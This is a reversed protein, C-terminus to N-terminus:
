SAPVRADFPGQGLRWSRAWGGAPDYYLAWLAYLPWNRHRFREVLLFSRPRELDGPKLELRFAGPIAPDQELGAARDPHFSALAARVSELPPAAGAPAGLTEVRFRLFRRGAGDRDLDALIRTAGETHCAPAGPGPLVPAPPAPYQEPHLAQDLAAFPAAIVLAPIWSIGVLTDQLKEGAKGPTPECLVVLPRHDNGRTLRLLMPWGSGTRDAVRAAPLEWDFATEAPGELTRVQIPELVASLSWGPEHVVLHFRGPDGPRPKRISLGVPPALPLGYQSRLVRQPEPDGPVTLPERGRCALAGALLIWGLAPLRRM